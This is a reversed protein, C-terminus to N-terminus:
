DFAGHELEYNIYDAWTQAAKMGEDFGGRGGTYYIPQGQELLEIAKNLRKPKYGSTSQAELQAAWTLAALSVVMATTNMKM